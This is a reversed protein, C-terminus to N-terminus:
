RPSIGTGKARSAVASVVSSGSLHFMFSLSFITDQIKVAATSSIKKNNRYWVM